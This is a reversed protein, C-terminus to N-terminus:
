RFRKAIDDYSELGRLPGVASLTVPAGSIIEGALDRLEAAGVGDIWEMMEGTPLVRDFVLTQRAIQEARAASSELSMLLGAKLQARARAVEEETLKEAAEALEGAVARVLEALEGEGTAAYVGFLGVDRFTWHFANIAYCLGRQERVHQFLRSSMGGGLIGALMQAAYFRQDLFSRGRFGLVIHAQELKSRRRREGGVYRAPEIEQTAEVPFDGFHEGALAVLAEHAVAGAAALVMGPGHYHEDLYSRLHDPRFGRVSAPTGLISRGLTQGPFAAEQFLEFVCDDPTDDVARIEQVIVGQERKLEEADFLSNRLIDGLIDIALPVDAKLVRAYYATQEFSTAANLDGGVSEIEEVIQRASRRGTGKFAMHELLHSIGHESDRESRAGQDVWVGLAATELEPRAHTVVRVGNALRSVAISM